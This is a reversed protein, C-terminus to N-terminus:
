RGSTNNGLSAALSQGTSDMQALLTQLSGFQLRYKLELRNYRADVKTTQASIEKLHADINTVRNGILGTKKDLFGDFLNSLRDAYGRNFDITGRAGTINGEIKFELGKPSGDLISNIRVNQGTGIFTYFAGNKELSGQVDVGSTEATVSFGSVGSTLFNGSSLAIKSASGYKESNMTFTKTVADYGVAVRGGVTAVNSDNNIVRAMEKALNDETYVGSSLVLDLTSNGDISVKFTNNTGDITVGTGAIAAGTVLAQSAVTNVDVNFVGEVTSKTSGTYSILNDSASANAAFLKGVAKPNNSLATTLMSQDLKLTGDLATTIGIDALSQISGSLGPISDILASRIDSKVTRLTSDGQLKGTVSKKDKPAEYSGLDKIISDLANFLQVFDSVGKSLGKTDETIEITKPKGIDASKLNLTVGQIVGAINNGSNHITLGNVVITSDQAAVTENMNATILRSLGLADTNNGDTDGTTSVDILNGSGSHTASFMLKYGAGVNVVTANVGINANNVADQIGRLSHNTADITISSTAGGVNFNLTGEGVVNNTSSFATQTALTHATALAQVEIQYLGNSPKGTVTTGIVAGDSSNASKKEFNSIDTLTAVQTKFSNFALKLTDFGTLESKFKTESRAINARKASVDAEALTKSMSAVDFRSAGLSNLITNGIDNAM